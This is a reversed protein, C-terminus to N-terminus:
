FHDRRPPRYMTIITINAHRDKSHIELVITNFQQYTKIINCTLEKRVFIACGGGQGEDRCNFFNNYGEIKFFEVENTYLWTENLILIEPEDTKCICKLYDLKNRLSCINLCYLKLKRSKTKMENQTVM